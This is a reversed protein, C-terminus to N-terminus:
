RSIVILEVTLNQTTGTFVEYEDILLEIRAEQSTEIAMNSKAISGDCYKVYSINSIMATAQCM